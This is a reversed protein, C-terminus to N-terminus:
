SLTIRVLVQDGAELVRQRAGRDYYEKQKAQALYANEQVVEMMEELRDRMEVVHTAVPIEENQEITWGERLM